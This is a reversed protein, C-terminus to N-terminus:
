LQICLSFELFYTQGEPSVLEEAFFFPLGERYLLFAWGGGFQVTLVTFSLFGQDVSVSWGKQTCPEPCPM